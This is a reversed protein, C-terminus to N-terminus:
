ALLRTRLAHNPYQGRNSKKIKKRVAPVVSDHVVYDRATKRLLPTLSIPHLHKNVDQIPRQKPVPVIDAEKWTLAAPKRSFLYEPHGHYTPNFLDANEKLLLGPISDPGQLGKQRPETLRVYSELSRYSQFPHWIIM